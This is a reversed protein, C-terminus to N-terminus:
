RSSTSAAQKRQTAFAKVETKDPLDAIVSKDTKLRRLIYPRVLERLPWLFQAGTPSGKVFHRVREVIWCAQISSTSFPGSIALPERHTGTLAFRVSAKLKSLGRRSPM